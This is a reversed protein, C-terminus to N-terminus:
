RWLRRRRMSPSKSSWADESSGGEDDEDGTSSVDGDEPKILLKHEVVVVKDVQIGSDKEDLGLFTDQDLDEEDRRAEALEVDDGDKIQAAFVDEMEAAFVDLEKEDDWAEAREVDDDDEMEAAFLDATEPM